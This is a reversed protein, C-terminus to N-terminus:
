GSRTGSHQRHLLRACEGALEEECVDRVLALEDPEFTDPSDLAWRWLSVIGIMRGIAVMVRQSETCIPRDMLERLPGDVTPMGQETLLGGLTSEESSGVYDRAVQDFLVDNPGEFIRFPHCDAMGGFGLSGPRYGDGGRLVTLHEAARFALDTTIAKILTSETRAPDAPAIM